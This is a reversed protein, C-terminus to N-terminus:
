AFYGEDVRILLEEVVRAGAETRVMALASAGGFQKKPAALWELAKAREGFAIGAIAVIRALRLARDSEEVTLREGKAIRHSLTRAPIIFALDDPRMGISALHKLV